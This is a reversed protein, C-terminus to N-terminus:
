SLRAALFATLERAGHVVAVVEVPKSQWRYVILYSWVGWFRYDTDLFDERFHGMGPMRALKNCEDYIQGVVANAKRDSSEDAIYEWIALLDSKADPTISFRRRM